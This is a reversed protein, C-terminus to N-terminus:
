RGLGTIFRSGKMNIMPFTMSRVDSLSQYGDGGTDGICYLVKGLMNKHDPSVDIGGAIIHPTVINEGWYVPIPVGQGTTNQFGTIGYPTGSADLKAGRPQPTLAQIIQGLAMSVATMIVMTIANAAVVATTSTAAVGLIPGIFAAQIGSHLHIKVRDNRQPIYGGWNRAPTNNIFCAEISLNGLLTGLNLGRTVVAASEEHGVPGVITLFM